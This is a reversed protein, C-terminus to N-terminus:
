GASRGLYARIVGPDRRVTEADGECIKLGQNLVTIRDCIEMILRMDHEIVVITRGGASIRRICASLEATEAPNMGAAPEDLLLLEPNSALARAIELRRQTGYPLKAAKFDAYQSLGMTELLERGRARTLREEERFRRTRFVADALTTRLHHHFGVRVNEIATMTKFLKINQFSRCLGLEAARHSPFGAIDMGKFLIRGGTPRLFGTLANFLTTKGAGNPGIIGHIRGRLVEMDVKDVAKLGGFHVSLERTELIREGSM